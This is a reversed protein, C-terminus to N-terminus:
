VAFIHTKTAALIPFAVGTVDDHQGLLSLSLETEAGAAPNRHEM